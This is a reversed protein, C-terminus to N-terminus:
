PRDEGTKGGRNEQANELLALRQTLARIKDNQRALVLTMSFVLGSLFLLAFFFLMNSPTEIGFLSCFFFLVKPFATVFVTMLDLVLWPLIYKLNNRDSKAKGLLYLFACFCILFLFIKLRISM